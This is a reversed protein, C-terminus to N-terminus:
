HGDVFADKRTELLKLIAKRDNQVAEPFSNLDKTLLDRVYRLEDMHGIERYTRNTLLIANPDDLVSSLTDHKGLEKAILAAAFSLLPFVAFFLWIDTLNALVDIRGIVQLLTTLIAAVLVILFAVTTLPYHAVKESLYETLDM